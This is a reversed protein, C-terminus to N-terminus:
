REMALDLAKVPDRWMDGIIDTSRIRGEETVYAKREEFLEQLIDDMKRPYDDGPFCGILSRYSIGDMPEAYNLIAM